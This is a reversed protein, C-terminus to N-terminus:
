SKFLPLMTSEVHMLKHAPYRGQELEFWSVQKEILETGRQATLVLGTPGIKWYAQIGYKNDWAAVRAAAIKLIEPKVM